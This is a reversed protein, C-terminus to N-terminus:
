PSVDNLHPFGVEDLDIPVNHIVPPVTHHAEGIESTTRNPHPQLADGSNSYIPM